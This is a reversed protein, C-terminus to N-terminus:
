GEEATPFTEEDELNHILMKTATSPEWDDILDMVNDFHKERLQSRTRVGSVDAVAKNIDKYLLAIQKKHMSWKREKGVQHVKQSIRKGIYSYKGPDISTNEELNIVRTKVENVEEKTEETAQFMLKLASMPDSPVQYGGTKRISPLVEKTVWRKFEMAQPMKSGFVLSYMGSENVLLMEQIGSSTPIPHKMRDEDDIHRQIAKHPENYDLIIAVDRGVFWPQEDILVTRIPTTGFNFIQLENM